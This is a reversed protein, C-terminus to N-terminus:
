ARSPTALDDAAVVPLLDIASPVPWPDSQRLGIVRELWTTGLLMVFAGVVLAPLLLLATM